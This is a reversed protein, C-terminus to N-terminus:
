TWALPTLLGVLTPATLGALMGILTGASTARRSSVGLLFAGVTPGSAYSLAALGAELASSARQALLAVIAQAVGWFVTFIRGLRIQQAEGAGPNLYPIYFDKLTTSALSNLSPSLAAAVVAALIFGTWAGPLENAIFTPLVEDGRAFSQGGYFSWLLTGILLFLAFQGFVVFGSLVLGRGADRASRAALLRQVLYQDTGHTALTLFMGGIVGSWFTYTNGLDFSLDLVQMKGEAAASAVAESIGGPLASTVAVLVALAGALYVFMQVVDTWITAKVGGEETYFMMAAALVLIFYPEPAGVVVAVVLAAAHLRIGDALTRYVLFVAAAVNRVSPGFRRLLLEYSTFVEGRFYAPILLAAIIFRGLIYGLALQLFAWNGNYSFGPVSTFTLTSTETAVVCAAIAWWPVSRSALFYDDVSKRKRGLYFGFFSIAALYALLVVVTSLSLNM